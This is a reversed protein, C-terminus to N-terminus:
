FVPFPLISPNNVPAAHPDTMLLLMFTHLLAAKGVLAACVPQMNLPEERGKSDRPELKKGREINFM